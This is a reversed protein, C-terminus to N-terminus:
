LKENKANIYHYSVNLQALHVFFIITKIRHVTENLERDDLNDDGSSELMLM